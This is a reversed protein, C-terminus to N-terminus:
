AKFRMSLDIARANKTLAGISIRHVGTEAVLRVNALNVGGSAELEAHTGAMQVAQKLNALDFNDLL